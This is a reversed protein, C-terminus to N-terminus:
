VKLAKQKNVWSIFGNSKVLNFSSGLHDKAIALAQKQIPTLQGLYQRINEQMEESYDSYLGLIDTQQMMIIIKIYM